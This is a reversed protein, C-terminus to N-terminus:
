SDEAQESLVKRLSPDHARLGGVELWEPAGGYVALVLSNFFRDPTKALYEAIHGARKGELSRQIFESLVPSQHIDDAYSVRAGIRASLLLRQQVIM